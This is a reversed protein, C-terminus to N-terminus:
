DHSKTKGNVNIVKRNPILDINFNVLCILLLDVVSSVVEIDVLISFSILILLDFILMKKLKENTKLERATNPNRDVITM